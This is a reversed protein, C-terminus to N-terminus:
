RIIENWVAEPMHGSADLVKSAILAGVGTLSTVTPEINLWRLRLQRTPRGSWANHNLKKKEMRRKRETVPPMTISM